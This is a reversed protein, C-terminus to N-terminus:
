KRFSLILFEPFLKRSLSINSDKPAFVEDIGNDPDLYFGEQMLSTVYETISRQYYMYPGATKNVTRMHVGEKVGQELILKPRCHDSNDIRSLATWPHLLSIVLKGNPRLVRKTEKSITHIEPLWMLVLNFCVANFSESVFPLGHKLDAMVIQQQGRSRIRAEYLFNPVIDCGVVRAGKEIALRSIIGEGCGADLLTKGFLDGLHHLIRPHLVRERLYRGEGNNKNDIVDLFAGAENIWIDEPKRQGRETVM